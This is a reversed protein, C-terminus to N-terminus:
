ATATAELRPQPEFSPRERTPPLENGIGNRDSYDHDQHAAHAQLQLARACTIDLATVGAVAALAAVPHGGRSPAVAAAGLLAMDVADGAVRSWVWFGTPGPQRSALIGCGSAIERMGCAQLLHEQGSLGVLRGVRRSLLLEALGLGISFWGLGRALTLAASSHRGPQPRTARVLAHAKRDLASPRGTLEPNSM